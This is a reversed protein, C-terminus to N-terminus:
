PAIPDFWNSFEGVACGNVGAVRFWYHKGSVLNGIVENGDNPTNLLAHQAFKDLGYEIHVKDAGTPLSWQVELQGSVGASKVNINAVTGPKSDSCTPAETSSGAFTPQDGGKPEETPTPTVRPEDTPTPTPEGTPTPTVEVTPTPTPSNTPTVTPQQCAGNTDYTQNNHPTGLHGNYSQVNNFNLTVDNGPTHHCITKYPVQTAFVQGAALVAVFLFIIGFIVKKM